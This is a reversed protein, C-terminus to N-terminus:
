DSLSHGIKNFSGCRNASDVKMRREINIENVNTVIVKVLTLFM